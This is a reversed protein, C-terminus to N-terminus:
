KIRTIEFNDCIFIEGLAGYKENEFYNFVENMTNFSNHKSEYPLDIEKNYSNFRMNTTEYDKKFTQRNHIQVYQGDNWTCLYIPEKMNSLEISESLQM